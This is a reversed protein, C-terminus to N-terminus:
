SHATESGSEAADLAERIAAALQSPSPLAALVLLPTTAAAEIIRTRQDDAATNTTGSGILVIIDARCERVLNVARDVRSVVIPFISATRFAHQCESGFTPDSTITVATAPTM